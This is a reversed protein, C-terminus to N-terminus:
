GPNTSPISPGISIMFYSFAPAATSATGTNSPSPTQASPPDHASGPPHLLPHLCPRQDNRAPRRRPPQPIVQSGLRRVPQRRARRAVTCEGPHATATIPPPSEAHSSALKRVRNAEFTYRTCRRSFSRADFIMASRANHLGFTRAPTSRPFRPTNSPRDSRSAPPSVALCQWHSPAPAPPSTHTRPSPMHRVRHRKAPLQVHILITIQQLFISASSRAPRTRLPHPPGSKGAPPSPPPAPIRPPAPHPAIQRVEFLHASDELASSGREHFRRGSGTKNAPSRPTFLYKCSFTAYTCSCVLSSRCTRITGPSHCRSPHPVPASKYSGTAASIASM